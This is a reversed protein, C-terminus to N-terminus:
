WDECRMTLVQPYLSHHNEHDVTWYVRELGRLKTCLEDVFPQHSLVSNHCTDVQCDRVSPPMERVLAGLLEISPRFSQWRFVTLESLLSLNRLVSHHVAYRISVKELKLCFKFFDHNEANRLTLERLNPFNLSINHPASKNHFNLTLSLLSNFQPLTLDHVGPFRPGYDAFYRTNRLPEDDLSCVCLSTQQTFAHAYRELVHSRVYASPCDSVSLSRSVLYFKCVCVCVIDYLCVCVCVCLSLFVSNFGSVLICVPVCVVCVCVGSVVFVCYGVPCVCVCVCM